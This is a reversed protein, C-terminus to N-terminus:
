HRPVHVDSGGEFTLRPGVRVLSPAPTFSGALLMEGQAFYPAAALMAPPVFGFVTALEALDSRSNMRMLALNDCQSLVQPHIKSPRQTSLLLWLGYKRGEAAIQVIRDTVAAQVRNVPDATCLNHAEDIVIMTPTRSERRAWLGELLDLSVALPEVPDRFGSLDLVTARVGSAVVEAASAQDAAWVEWAPMGLNEIRQALAREDPNGTSLAEALKDVGELEASRLGAMTRLFQNYEGRDAIPDLQLVAAQARPPMTAFRMRLSEGGAALSGLVRVEAEGLRERASAPAEPRTEGLRVFDANPDLVVMRLDTGILLQELLVGLAYTKGSGSQGCLFTHRNFGSARLRAVTEVGASRWTGVPLDAGASVQLAELQQAPAAEMAAGRFPRRSRPETEGDPRVRAIVAGRGRVTDDAAPGDQHDTVQGLFTVGDDHLLVIDGAVLVTDASSRYTFTRGDLSAADPVRPAQSVTM